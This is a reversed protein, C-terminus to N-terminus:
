WWGNSTIPNINTNSWVWFLKDGDLELFTSGSGLSLIPKEDAHLGQWDQKNFDNTYGCQEIM